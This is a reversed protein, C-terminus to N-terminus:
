PASVERLLEAAQDPPVTNVWIGTAQEFGAPVSIRPIVEVYWHFPEADRPATHVVVNYPVDGLAQRLRHLADRLAIAIADLVLDAALDFRAGADAHALRLQYPSASSYPCWLALGDHRTVVLEDRAADAEVLDAGSERVRTIAEDVARPVVDLAFVQAHPHAISAGAAKLHNIIAVGYVHGSELHAHVRDRLVRFVTIAEDDDLEGFSRHDPSLVAVEHTEVIPYLNPVVRVQWGPQDREGGGARAVEPPTKAEEGPCFPCETMGAGEDGATAFTTPRAARAAAVIVDRGSLPDHRLQSMAILNRPRETVGETSLRESRTM